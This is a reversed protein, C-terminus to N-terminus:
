TRREECHDKLREGYPKDYVVQRVITNTDNEPPAFGGVFWTEGLCRAARDNELGCDAQILRVIDRWNYERTKGTMM